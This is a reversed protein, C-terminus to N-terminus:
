NKPLHTDNSTGELQTLLNARIDDSLVAANILTQTRVRNSRAMQEIGDVVVQAYFGDATNMLEILKIAALDSTLATEILLNIISITTKLHTGSALTTWLQPQREVTPIDRAFFELWRAELTTRYLAYGCFIAESGKRVRCQRELRRQEAPMLVLDGILYLATLRDPRAGTEIQQLLTTTIPSAFAVNGGVICALSAGFAIIINRIAHM